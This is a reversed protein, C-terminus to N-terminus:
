AGFIREAAAEPSELVRIGRELSWTELGFVPKGMKLALGIESLTGFRGGIAIVADASQALVANRAHGLGTAIPITIYSNAEAADTGPLIGITIGGEERAGRAAGEMVGTRGGCLLIGGRAGILRGCQYALAYERETAEAAGIVAIRLPIPKNSSRM